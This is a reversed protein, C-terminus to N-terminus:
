ASVRSPVRSSSRAPLTVVGLDALVATYERRATAAAAPEGLATLGTVLRRWLRDHYRDLRLGARAVRVVDRHRGVRAHRDALEAAVDVAADRLRDREAMVWESADAAPLLPGAYAAFADELRAVRQTGAARRAASVSREFRQADTDVYAPQLRYGAPIREVVPAGVLSRLASVGVALRHRARDPDADPWFWGCLQRDSVSGGAFVCLVQLLERHQPRLGTLDAPGGGDSVAFGGLVQIRWVRPASTRAGAAVFAGGVTADLGTLATEYATVADAWWGAEALERAFSLWEHSLWEHPASRLPEDHRSM